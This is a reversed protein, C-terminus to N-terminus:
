VRVDILSEEANKLARLRWYESQKFLAKIEKEMLALAEDKKRLQEQLEKIQVEM